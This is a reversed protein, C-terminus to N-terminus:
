QRKGKELSISEKIYILYKFDSENVYGKGLPNKRIRGGYRILQRKTKGEFLM